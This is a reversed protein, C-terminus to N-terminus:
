DPVGALRKLEQVSRGTAKTIQGWGSVPMEDSKANAIELLETVTIGLSDALNRWATQNPTLDKNANGGTDAATGGNDTGTGGGTNGGTGGSSAQAIPDGGGAMDLKWGVDRGQATGASAKAIVASNGASGATQTLTVGCKTTSGPYGYRGDTSALVSTVAGAVDTAVATGKLTEDALYKQVAGKVNYLDSLAAQDCATQRYYSYYPIAIATIIGIIAIVVMLEVLTFGEQDRIKKERRESATKTDRPRTGNLTEETAEYTLL